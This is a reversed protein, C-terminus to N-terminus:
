ILSVGYFSLITKLINFICIIIFIIISPTFFKRLKKGEPLDLILEEHEMGRDYVKGYSGDVQPLPEKNKHLMIVLLAIGGSVFVLFDMLVVVWEKGTFIPLFQELVTFLNNVGHLIICAWISKTKVYVCGIVVGMLITYLMQLPHQHMLGFLFASAFIATTKGFPLLNTLIAGRFLYEECFAPVIATAFIEVAFLMWLQTTSKSQFDSSSGFLTPTTNPLFSTVTINNLYALTFNLAVVTIIALIVWRNLRFSTYIPRSSPLKKCMKRLMFAPISFSLFYVVGFLINIIIEGRFGPHAIQQYFAGGLSVAFTSLTFFAYFLLLALGIKACTISYCKANENM